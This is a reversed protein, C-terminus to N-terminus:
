PRYSQDEVNEATQKDSGCDGNGQRHRRRREVFPVVIM